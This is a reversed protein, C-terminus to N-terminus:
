KARPLTRPQYANLWPLVCAGATTATWAVFTLAAINAGRAYSYLINMAHLNM